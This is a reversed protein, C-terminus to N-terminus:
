NVFVIGFAWGLNEVRGAGGICARLDAALVVAHHVLIWKSEALVHFEVFLVLLM